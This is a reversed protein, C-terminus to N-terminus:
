PQLSPGFATDLMAQIADWNPLLVAAGSYPVRWQAAMSPDISYTRILQADSALKGALPVLDVIAELNIDTFVLNKFKGYLEPVKALGNLSLVRNFMARIVEQQRRLRDFDSSRKRMRVYCLATYGDMHYVGPSYTYITPGCQDQLYQGVSVYIGGLIDVASVFGTFNVRVWYDIEIGFNYLITDKVMEPGGRVDATNIRDVRWGPLYVYLDRPISILTATETNPDLSVIMMTDTRFAGGEPRLDSGLLMINVVGEPFDIKTKPPPIEIASPEV